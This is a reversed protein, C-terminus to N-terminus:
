PLIGMMEPLYLLNPYMSEKYCANTTAITFRSRTFYNGNRIVPHGKVYQVEDDPISGIANEGAQAKRNIEDPEDSLNGEKYEQSIEIVEKRDTPAKISGPM